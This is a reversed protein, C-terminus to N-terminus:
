IAEIDDWSTIWRVKLFLSMSMTISIVSKEEIVIKTQDKELLSAKNFAPIVLVPSERQCSSEFLFLKRASIFLNEDHSLGRGYLSNM